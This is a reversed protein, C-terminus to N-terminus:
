PKRADIAKKVAKWDIDLNKKDYNDSFYEKMENDDMYKMRLTDATFKAVVDKEDFSADPKQKLKEEYVRQFFQRKQNGMDEHAQNYRTLLESYTSKGSNADSVINALNESCNDAATHLTHYVHSKSNPHNVVQASQALSNVYAMGRNGRTFEAAAARLEDQAMEPPILSTENPRVLGGYEVTTERNGIGSMLAGGIKGGLGVASEAAFDGMASGYEMGIGSMAMSMGSGATAGIGAGALGLTLGGGLGGVAGVGQRVASAYKARARQRYMKAMTANSLKGRFAEEDFNHFNAFKEALADPQPVGGGAPSLPGGGTPDTLAGGAEGDGKADFYDAMQSDEKASKAAEIAGGVRKGARGIASGLGKAMHGLGIVSAIAKADLGNERIGLTRRAQGRAALVMFCSVLALFNFALNGNAMSTFTIPIILIIGDIIPMITLGVTELAWDSYVRHNAMGKVCIIPFLIFHIMMSMAYAIYIGAMFISAGVAALYILSTILEKDSDIAVQRFADLFGHSKFLAALTDFTVSKLLIDRIYLYIDLIYPMLVILSFSLFANKLFESFEMKMVGYDSKIAISILKYLAYLTMFAYMYTRIRQFIIAAVYGYPNGNQLEFGFLTVPQSNGSLKIGYGAVRGFVISDLSMGVGGLLSDLKDAIYFLLGGFADLITNLLKGFIGKKKSSEASAQGVEIGDVIVPNTELTYNDGDKIIRAIGREQRQYIDADYKVAGHSNSNGSLESDAWMRETQIRLYAEFQEAQRKPIWGYTADQAWRMQADSFGSVTNMSIGNADKQTIGSAYDVGFNDKIFAFEEPTCNNWDYDSYDFTGYFYRIQNLRLFYDTGESSSPVTHTVSWQVFEKPSMDSFNVGVYDLYSALARRPKMGVLVLLMTLLLILHKCKKM